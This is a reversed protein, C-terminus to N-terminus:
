DPAQCFVDPLGPRRLCQMPSGLRLTLGTQSAVDILHLLLGVCSRVQWHVPIPQSVQSVQYTPFKMFGWLVFVWLLFILDLLIRLRTQCCCNKCWWRNGHPMTVKPKSDRATELNMLFSHFFLSNLKKYWTSIFQPMYQRWSSFFLLMFCERACRLYWM